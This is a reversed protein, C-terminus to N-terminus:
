GATKTAAVGAKTGASDSSTTTPAAPVQTRNKGKYQIANLLVALVIVAGKFVMQWYESVGV